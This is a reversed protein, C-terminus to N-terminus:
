CIDSNTRPLSLGVINATEEISREGKAYKGNLRNLNSRSVIYDTYASLFVDPKYSTVDNSTSFQSNLYDRIVIRKGSTSELKTLQKMLSKLLSARNM